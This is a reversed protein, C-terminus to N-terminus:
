PEITFFSTKQMSGWSNWHFDESTYEISATLEYSGVHDLGSLWVVNDLELEEGPLIEYIPWEVPIIAAFEVKLRMSDVQMVDPADGHYNYVLLEVNNLETEDALEPQQQLVSEGDIWRTGVWGWDTSGWASGWWAFSSVSSFGYLDIDVAETFGNPFRAYTEVWINAIERGGLDIAEFSYLSAWQANIDGEIYNGDPEGLLNTPDGNFEYYWENFEDVYLYEFPLPEGVGGGTYTQGPHIVIKRADEVRSIDLRVTVNLPIEGDNRVKASIPFADGATVRRGDPLNVRILSATPGAYFGGRVKHPIMMGQPDLLITDILDIPSEGAEVAKIKFSALLGDGSAGVRPEGGRRMIVFTYKGEFADTTYYFFTPHTGGASMFDGETLESVTLVSVYPTVKVSFQIAWVNAVGKIMVNISGEYGPWGEQGPGPVLPPDIEISAIPPAQIDVMMVSFLM